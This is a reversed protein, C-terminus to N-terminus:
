RVWLQDLLVGWQPHYQYNGVRKSVFDVNRRNSTPVMPAQALIEGEIRQWLVNATSPDQAQLAAARELEADIQPDCFGSPNSTLQPSAPVFGACGFVPQIMDIASPFEASWGWYGVQTRVRPDRIKAFYVRPDAARVVELRARYGIADLVSVMYRGQDATSSGVWVTVPAGRTGSRRVRRRAADLGAIGGGMYPCTRRYGALNPPLIQCTPAFARGVVRVFADRDFADNVARRVQPDDFPPVRTNLFFYATHPQTSMHLRAPYRTALRDLEPKRLPTQFLAVDASGREVARVASSTTGSRWSWSIADPYGDPQADPAWERFRENRVLRLTHTRPRFEAIRYPGTSPLPHTGVDRAPAGAPLAFAFPLALKFLFDPDPATLHFTVTRASRDVVIGRSLDCSKAKSCRNAGIIGDYYPVREAGPRAEFFREIARRFDDPQVLAGSSYRVGRRVRFIYRKGGDTVTPLSVALDPVLQSGRVGSVRRFGVLGDNTLISVCWCADTSAPDVSTPGFASAVRVAGGRHERGTSRVAVFVGQSSLALDQPPNGLRVTGVIADTSPEVRSLRGDAADAVWVQGHGAVVGTAARGVRITDTVAGRRPDIKSVTGDTRNAVWVSGSGVAVAEPDTGVGIRKLVQGSRPNLVTVSGSPPSVVWLRGFGVAIGSAGVAAPLTRKVRDSLPDIESLTGDASNAVWVAPGDTAVGSPGNGVAIRDVVQNSEPDIRAVTGDLGNAVWVANRTVAVGAPGDGAQITQRVTKTKPDIRTVSNDASAVWIADDDAAVAAPNEGVPIAAIVHNTEPDIVAVSNAGPQISPEGGDARLFAVLAAAAAAAILAGGLLLRRGGRRALARRAARAPAQLAPDHNLIARELEQLEPSPEIGLQEAFLSRTARYLELADAQRGTRYLALMLQQRPREWLPNEDILQELEAKVGNADGRTMRVDILDARAAAQLEELRRIENQTFSEFRFDALAPGRWLGLAERLLSLARASDGAELAARGEATLREFRSIDLEGPEVEIVYGAPTTKLREAGIRKRLRSVYVQLAKATHEPQQEPWLEEVLRDTSVPENAHLLLLALLASERGRAVEVVRGREGVELRGLLRFEM